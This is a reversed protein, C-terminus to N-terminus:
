RGIKLKSTAILQSQCFFLKSPADVKDNEAPQIVAHGMPANGTFYTKSLDGVVSELASEACKRLTPESDYVKEPFHWVPKGNSDYSSGFLLLYSDETLHERCHGTHYYYIYMVGSDYAATCMM